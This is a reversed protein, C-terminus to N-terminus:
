GNDIFIRYANSCLASKSPILIVLHTAINTIYIFHKVKEYQAYFLSVPNHYAYFKMVGITPAITSPHRWMSSTFM